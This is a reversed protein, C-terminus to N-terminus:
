VHREDLLARIVAIPDDDLVLDAPIPGPLERHGGSAVLAIAAAGSVAALADADHTGFGVYTEPAITHGRPGIEERITVLGAEVAGATGVLAAENLDALAAALERGESGMGATIGIVLPASSPDPRGNEIQHRDTRSAERANGPTEPAPLEELEQTRGEDRALARVAGPRLTGLSPRTHSIIPAEVRGSLAPKLWVLDPDDEDASHVELGVFDGTLGLGLRAALRPLLDRGQVTWGGLVAFPERDRLLQALADAFPATAYHGLRPDAIALVRDAGHATLEGPLSGAEACPLVAVVRAALERKVAAACALAELTVNAIAGGRLEAIVWLERKILGPAAGSEAPPAPTAPARRADRLLDAVLLRGKVADDVVRAARDRAIPRLDRVFTPSGRTGYDRPGGGLAEADLEEITGSPVEEPQASPGQRGGRVAVLAPLAVAWTVQEHEHEARVELMASAADFAIASAGTVQALGLLEALQPGLQGTAGDLSHSGCLVLAPALREIASALTRATALTDAGAFRRDVLHVARAAGRELCRELAARAEPPGMTVAVIEAGLLPALALAHTLADLDPPNLILEVGERRARKSREDFELESPLPIQKVCVVIRAGATM